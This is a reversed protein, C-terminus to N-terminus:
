PESSARKVIPFQLETVTAHQQHEWDIFHFIERGANALTYGNQEVWQGLHMYAASLTLWEGRHITTALLPVAPLTKPVMQLDHKLPIPKADRREVPFGVEVDVAEVEYGDDHFVALLNTNDKQRAYPHSEELLNVLAEMDPVVTRVALISLEDASKLAVEYPSVGYTSEIVRLRSDLAALTEEEERIRGAIETRKALLM